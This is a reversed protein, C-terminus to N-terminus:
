LIIINNEVIDSDFIVLIMIKYGKILSRKVSMHTQTIEITVEISAEEEEVEQVGLVGYIIEVVAETVVNAV